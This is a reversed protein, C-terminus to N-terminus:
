KSVPLSNITKYNLYFKAEGKYFVSGFETTPTTKADNVCVTCSQHWGDAILLKKANNLEKATPMTM